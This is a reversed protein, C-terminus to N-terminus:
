RGGLAQGLTSPLQLGKMAQQPGIGLSALLDIFGGSQIPRLAPLSPTGVKQAQPPQPATVGRLTKLLADDGPKAPPTDTEKGLNSPRPRPMPVSGQAPTTPAPNLSEGLSPYRRMIEPYAPEAAAPPTVVPAAIPASPAPTPPSVPAPSPAMPPAPPPVLDMRPGPQPYELPPQSMIAGAMGGMGTPAPYPSAANAPSIGLIMNLLDTPDM